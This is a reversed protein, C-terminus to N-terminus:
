VPRGGFLVPCRCNRKEAALAATNNYMTLYDKYEALTVYTNANPVGTGDEIILVDEAAM